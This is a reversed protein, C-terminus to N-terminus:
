RGIIYVGNGITQNRGDVTRGQINYLATNRDLAFDTPYNRQLPSVIVMNRQASRHAATTVRSQPEVGTSQWEVKFKRTISKGTGGWIENGASIMTLYHTAYEPHKQIIIKFFDNVDIHDFTLRPTNGAVSFNVIKWSSGNGESYNWTSGDMTYTTPTPGSNWGGAPIPGNGLHGIWIMLEISRATGIDAATPNTWIDYAIDIGWNGSSSATCAASDLDWTLYTPRYDSLKYILSPATYLPNLGSYGSEISISVWNQPLNSGTPFEWDSRWSNNTDAPASVCSTWDISVAGWVSQSVIYPACYIKDDGSCKTLAHVGLVLFLPVIMTKLLTSKM